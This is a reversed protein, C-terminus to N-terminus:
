LKKYRQPTCTSTPHRSHHAPSPTTLTSKHPRSPRAKHFKKAQISSTMTLAMMLRLSKKHAVRRKYIKNSLYEFLNICGRTIVMLIEAFIILWVIKTQIRFSYFFVETAL